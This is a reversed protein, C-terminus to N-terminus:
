ASVPERIITEKYVSVHQLLRGLELRTKIFEVLANIPSSFSQYKIKHKDIIKNRQQVTTHVLKQYKDTPDKPLTYSLQQSSSICLVYTSYLQKERSTVLYPLTSTYSWPNKVEVSCHHSHNHERGLRQVRFVPIWHVAPQTSTKISASFTIVRGHISDEVRCGM